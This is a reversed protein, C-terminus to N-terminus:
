GVDKIGLLELIRGLDDNSYFAIEVSGKLKKGNPLTRCPSIRVSTGLHRYLRDALYSLHSAPIDAQSPRTRRGPTRRSREIIRELSRVSLGEKIVRRALIKQEEEIAIGLLAKAHGASLRGDAVAERVEPPLSLLRLTNAV